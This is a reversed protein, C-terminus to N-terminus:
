CAPRRASDALPQRAQTTLGDPDAAPDLEALRDAIGPVAQFQGSSLM